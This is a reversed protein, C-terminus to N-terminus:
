KTILVSFIAAIGFIFIVLGTMKNIWWLQKLRFKRRFLNVLTSLSYWWLSGGAFVGIVTYTTALPSSTAKVGGIGAFLAGFLFIAALLNSITIIFVSFFDEFLNNKKKRNKRLQKIPNSFFIKVGLMMILIGGFFQFLNHQKEIFNIIFTLGFGAVLAFITDAVAAGMGSIFGSLRGKNITRQICLVGIPGLPISALLGIIIGKVLLEIAM